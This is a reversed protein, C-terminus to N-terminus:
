LEFPLVRDISLNYIFHLLQRTGQDDEGCHCDKVQHFARLRPNDNTEAQSDCGCYSEGTVPVAGPVPPVTAASFDEESDSDSCQLAIIYISLAFTFTLLM